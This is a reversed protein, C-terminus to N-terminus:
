NLRRMSGAPPNEEARSAARWTARMRSGFILAIVIGPAVMPLNLYFPLSQGATFDKFFLEYLFLEFLIAAFLYPWTRRYKMRELAIFMPTVLVVAAFFGALFIVFTYLLAQFFESALFYFYFQGGFVAVAITLMFYLAGCIVAGTLVSVIMQEFAINVRVEEIIESETKDM